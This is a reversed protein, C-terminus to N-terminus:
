RALQGLQGNAAFWALVFFPAASTLADIRDLAGGHGPLLNGSDKMGAARKVRSEVLDGVVSVLATLLLLALWIAFVRPEFGGFMIPTLMAAVLATVLLGGGVGEWTKGPSVTPALKHRGFRKGAFYAGTDAGWVVLFLTLTPWAGGGEAHLQLPAHWAPVLVVFGSLLRGTHTQLLGDGPEKCIVMEAFAWAWWGMAFLFLTLPPVLWMVAIFVALIASVYVARGIVALHCLGAWEWASALIFVGLLAALWLTPWGFIAWLMLPLLVAATAVRKWLM